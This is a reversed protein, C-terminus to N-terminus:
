LYVRSLKLWLELCLIIWVKLALRDNNKDYFRNVLFDIAVPNFLNKVRAGKGLNSVVYDRMKPERLWRGVPAGFGQKRRHVFAKPMFESLLDKLIIKSSDKDSKFKTPLNIVFEVLETDLFPSRVELGHMMSIRDVKSLLQGPLYTTLDFITIKQMANENDAYAGPAFIDNNIYQIGGWLRIREWTTFVRTSRVRGQFHNLFLKEFPHARYSLNLHRTHWGYGMFIEDGGDGSLAVKVKSAALESILHQPFDSSDAHPEDLYTIVKELEKVMNGSAEVTYHESKIFDAAEKAYPLENVYDGYGLSFTKLPRDLYKSALISVITSDVGGSLLAGIEVDAALMRKKVAEDLLRGVEERAEEYDIKIPRHPLDWYRKISLNQNKYVASHAPPLQSINKYVSKWPSIYMLQLYNDLAEEDLVGTIGASILAKIESAVFLNNNKDFTYYLPKKGFRDRAMFLTQKKEDWIAFAFMGDLYKPCKEGYEQYAKLIVETDSNTTFLYGKAGLEKKLERYNYIEGNFTIAIDHKNDRMPQHSSKLDIISLRTHGLLCETFRMEGRDDPGRRALAHLGANVKQTNHKEINKGAIALIGCM